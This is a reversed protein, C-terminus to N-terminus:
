PKVSSVYLISYIRIKNDKAQQVMPDIDGQLYSNDGITIIAAVDGDQRLPDNTINYVAADVSQRISIGSGSVGGKLDLADISSNLAAHNYITVNAVQQWYYMIRGTVTHLLDM